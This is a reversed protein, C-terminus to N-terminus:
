ESADIAERIEKKWGELTKPDLDKPYGRGAIRYKAEGVVVSGEGTPDYTIYDAGTQNPDRPARVPQDGRRLAAQYAQQNGLAGDIRRLASSGTQGCAMRTAKKSQGGDNGHAIEVAPRAQRQPRQSTAPRPEAAPSPHLVGGNHCANLKPCYNCSRQAVMEPT